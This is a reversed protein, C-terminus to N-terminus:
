SLLAQGVKSANSRGLTNSISQGVSILKTLDIGTDIDMNSLMYVLDESALNGSAGKAYPCGGLGAVSSDFSAIGQQLGILVNALAQGYTDHMHMALREAPIRSLLLNLLQQTKKPTGVGITDGLSIEYCGMASLKAAIDAVLEPKIDGEYPCGV